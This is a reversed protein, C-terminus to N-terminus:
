EARAPREPKDGRPPRGRGEPPGGEPMCATVDERTVGCQGSVEGHPSTFSCQAGAEQNTCAAIAEPPPGPMRALAMEASIAITIFLISTVPKM